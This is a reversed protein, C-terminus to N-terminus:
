LGMQVHGHNVPCHPTEFHRQCLRLRRAHLVMITGLVLQVLSRWVDEWRDQVAMVGLLVRRPMRSGRWPRPIILCPGRNPVSRTHAASSACDYRMLFERATIRMTTLAVAQAPCPRNGTVGFPIYTADRGHLQDWRSPNFRDPDEFGSRQYDSHNFCLVSGKAIRTREDVVIENSAIRHAVGFLPYQRLSENIVANLYRDDDPDALLRERVTPHKAVAMLLHTMAESMQVIATNFFVGQLYLAQQRTSGLDPLSSALAGQEVKDVLFATLRDRRKM